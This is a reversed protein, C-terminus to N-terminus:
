KGRTEQRKNPLAELAMEWLDEYPIIEIEHTQYAVELPVSRLQKLLPETKRLVAERHFAAAPIQLLMKIFCNSRFTDGQTLYRSCYKEIAEIRDIAQHYNKDTLLFLIQIILIPINMGRKDKSFTPIDNLFKARKFKSAGEAAAQPSIKGVQALYQVYAEYIKWMEQIHAPHAPNRLFPTAREGIHLAEDYHRTHTSLLFYSEQLKLWNFSGQDFLSQYDQIIVQGREFERLQIYCVVLQYYFAQLPLNSDFDKKRFFAIADECVNATTLYDNRSSYITTQILRGCLHLRFSDSSAMAPAVQEYYAQAKDAIEVKTAKNNVFHSVLHTYMEEAENELMWVQQHHRYASRYQDYKNQDGQITGYHLRLISLINMTLETFEFHQAQKLLSELMDIGILKANRTLLVMVAAWKRNCEFYAKQRDSHGPNKFELLFIASVLREKLRERLNLYKSGATKSGYMLMAADEDTKVEGNAISECLQELKSDREFVVGWLGNAKLREIQLLGILEILERM